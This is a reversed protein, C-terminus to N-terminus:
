RDWLALAGAAVLALSAVVWHPDFNGPGHTAHHLGLLYHNVLVDFLDFAGLGLLGAGALPVVRLSEAARREIRWIWGLGTLMVGLMVLTFAGDAVLNTRLGSLSSPDYVGSLLHHLQLVLHLLLVDVVASFGFGAVGAALLARDARDM